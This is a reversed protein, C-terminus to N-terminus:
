EEPEADGEPEVGILKELIRRSRIVGLTADGGGRYDVAVTGDYGVSLMADVLVKLDHGDHKVATDLSPGPEGGGKASVFDRTSASVVSAYPTLRRMYATPDASASAAEFDPFTGVRFGGIKKILETVRDPTATLGPSPALLVNLELREPGSMIKRVREATRQLVEPSDDGVARVAVASCGLLQGAQIVRRLRDAAAAGRTESEDGFALGESEIIALCAAGAKDARERFAELQARSLGALMDTPVNIGHLGLTQRAFMPLDSLTLRPKVGKSATLLPRLCSASLTLLM